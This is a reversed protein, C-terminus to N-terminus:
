RGTPTPRISRLRRPAPPPCEPAPRRSQADSLTAVVLAGALLLSRRHRAFLGAGKKKDAGKRKSRPEEPEVDFDEPKHGLGGAGPRPRRSDTM